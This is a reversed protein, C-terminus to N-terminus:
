LTIEKAIKEQVSFMKTGHVFGLLHLTAHCCALCIEYEYKVKNKKAWEEIYEPCIVIEGLYFNKNEGTEFNIGDKDGSFSLIDTPEDKKRFKLNIKRIERASVVGMSIEIDKEELSKPSVNKVTRFVSEKALKEPFDVGISNNIEISINNM